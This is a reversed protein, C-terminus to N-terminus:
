NQCKAWPICNLFLFFIKVLIMKSQDKSFSVYRLLCILKKLSKHCFFFIYFYTVHSFLCILLLFLALPLLSAGVKKCIVETRFTAIDASNEPREIINSSSSDDPTYPQYFSPWGTGSDYKAESSFGGSFDVNNWAWHYCTVCEVLTFYMCPM